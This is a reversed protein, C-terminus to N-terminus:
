SQKPQTNPVVFAALGVLLGTLLTALPGAVDPPMGAWTQLGWQFANSIPDATTAGLGAILSKNIPTAM